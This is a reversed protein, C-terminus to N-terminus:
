LKFESNKLRYKNDSGYLSFPYDSFFDPFVLVTIFIISKGKGTYQMTMKIVRLLTKMKLINNMELPDIM